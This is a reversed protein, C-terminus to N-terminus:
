LTNTVVASKKFKNKKPSREIHNHKNNFPNFKNASRLEEYMHNIVYSITNISKQIEGINNSNLIYTKLANLDAYILNHVYHQSYCGVKKKINYNFECEYNFGCFQYSSRPIADNQNIFKHTFLALGLQNSLYKSMEILWDIKQIFDNKDFNDQNRIVNRMMGIVLNEYELIELDTMKKPKLKIVEDINKSKGTNVEEVSDTSSCLFKKNNDMSSGLEKEVSEVWSLHLTNMDINNQKTDTVYLETDSLDLLDTNNTKM